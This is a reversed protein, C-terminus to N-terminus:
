ELHRAIRDDYLNRAVDANRPDETAILDAYALIPHVYEDTTPDFAWFPTLAEVMGTEYTPANLKRLRAEAIFKHLEAKPLYVTAVAPKLYETYYAGAVEGGWLGGFHQIPFDAWWHARPAQFYGLHLKHRLAAPYREVWTQLLNEQRILRRKGNPNETLFGTQILDEIVKGITGLAVGAAKAISRYPENVLGPNCLLVYTVKLGAATFARRKHPKAHQALAKPKRNGKILIHRDPARIFANGATDIFFVNQERLRDAMTPNVYDAVLIGAQYRKVRDVVAGLTAHQAWPKIEATYEHGDIELIADPYATGDPDQTQPQLPLVNIHLGTEGTFAEVAYELIEQERTTHPPVRNM